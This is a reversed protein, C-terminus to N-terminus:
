DIFFKQQALYAKTIQTVKKYLKIIWLILIKKIEVQMRKFTVKTLAIFLLSIHYFFLLYFKKSKHHFFIKTITIKESNSYYDM